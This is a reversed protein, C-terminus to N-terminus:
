RSRRPVPLHRSRAPWGSVLRVDPRLAPGLAQLAQTEVGQQALEDGPGLVDEVDLVALLAQEVGDDGHRAVEAQGVRQPPDGLERGVQGVRLVGREADQARVAHEALEDGRADVVLQAPADAVQRRAVADEADQDVVRPRQADGVQRGVAAADAERGVVRRHAREQAHGDAGPAGDEPVEVQRLLAAAPLEGLAVLVDDDGERGGGAIATWFERSKSSTRRRSVHSAAAPSTVERSSAPPSAAAM